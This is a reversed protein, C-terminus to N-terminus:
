RLSRRHLFAFEHYIIQCFHIVTNNRIQVAASVATRYSGPNNQLELAM